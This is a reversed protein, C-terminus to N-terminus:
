WIGPCGLSQIYFLIQTGVMGKEMVRGSKLDGLKMLLIKERNIEQVM